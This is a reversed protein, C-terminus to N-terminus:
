PTSEGPNSGQQQLVFPIAGRVDLGPVQAEGFFASDAPVHHSLHTALEDLTIRGDEDIDGVGRLASVLHHTLLGAELHAPTLLPAGPTTALITSVQGGAPPVEPEPTTSLGQPALSRGRGEFSADVVLLSAVGPLDLAAQLSALTIRGEEPGADRLLLQPEGDVSAGYGAVYVLLQDGPRLRGRLTALAREVDAGTATADTLLSVHQPALGCGEVLTAAVRQADRAAYALPPLSVADTYRSVGVVLALTKRRQVQLQPETLRARLTTGLEDVLARGLRAQAAPLLARFVSRWNDPENSPYIFGLLQWGRDFEDFSGRVEIPLTAQHLVRGSDVSLVRAEAELTLSYDETAVFWAPFLFFFWNVLNPVYWGNHGEFRVAVEALRLELLLDHGEDWSARLAERDRGQVALTREFLASAALWDRLDERWADGDIVEELRYGKSAEGEAPAFEISALGVEVPMREAGIGALSVPEEGPPIASCGAATLGLCAVSVLLQRRTRTRRARSPPPSIV